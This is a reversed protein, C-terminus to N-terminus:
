QNKRVIGWLDVPIGNPTRFFGTYMPSDSSGYPEPRKDFLIGRNELEETLQLINSVMFQLRINDYSQVNSRNADPVVAFFFDREPSTFMSFEESFANVSLGLIDIFFAIEAEYDEVGYQLCFNWCDGWKVPFEHISKRWYHKFDDESKIRSNLDLRERGLAHLEDKTFHKSM